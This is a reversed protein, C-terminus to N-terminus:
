ANKCRKGRRYPERCQLPSVKNESRLIKGCSKRFILHKKEFLKVNEM